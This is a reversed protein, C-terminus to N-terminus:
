AGLNEYIKLLELSENEWHLTERAQEAAVRLSHRLAEDEWLRQIAPRLTEPALDPVLLAFPYTRCIERYELFDISLQPIGAMMYDFFKNGLSFQYSQGIPQLLNLGLWANQTIPRLAIPDIRGLFRVKGPAKAAARRRLEESLDGEGALWLEGPADAMIDIVEELGRGKNLAGQYLMYPAASAPSEVPDCRVPLNRVVAMDIGYAKRYCEAVSASVTYAADVGPVLLREVIAWVRRVFPRGELEPVQTFYEHADYVLRASTLKAALWGAPLTDLDVSGIIAPRQRLLWFLLRLNYEAYFLWGKRFFCQLRHSHYPHDELPPSDQLERGTLTVDYGAKQLTRAIRQMRQDFSLDNTVTFVISPRSM